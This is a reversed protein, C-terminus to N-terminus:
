GGVCKGVYRGGGCVCMCAYVSAWLSISSWTVRSPSAYMVLLMLTTTDSQLTYVYM